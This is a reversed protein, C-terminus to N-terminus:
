NVIKTTINSIQLLIVLRDPLLITNMIKSQTYYIDYLSIGKLDYVIEVQTRTYKRVMHISKSCTIKNQPRMNFMSKM